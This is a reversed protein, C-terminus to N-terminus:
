YKEHWLGHDYVTVLVLRESAKPRPLPSFHVMSPRPQWWPSRRRKRSRVSSNQSDSTYASKLPGSRVHLVNCVEPFPQSLSRKITFILSSPPHHSNKSHSLKQTLVGGLRLVYPAYRRNHFALGSFTRIWSGLLFLLLCLTSSSRTCFDTTKAISRTPPNIRRIVTKRYEWFMIVGEGDKAASRRGTRARRCMTVREERRMLSSPECDRASSNWHARFGENPRGNLSRGKWGSSRTSSRLLFSRVAGGMKVRGKRGPLRTSDCRPTTKCSSIM